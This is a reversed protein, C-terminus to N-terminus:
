KPLIKSFVDCTEVEYLLPGTTKTVKFTDVETTSGQYNRAYVNQKIDFKSQKRKFNKEQKELTKMIVNDPHLLDLPM